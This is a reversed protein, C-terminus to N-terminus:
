IYIFSLYCLTLYSQCINGENVTTKNITSTAIKNQKSIFIKKSTTRDNIINTLGMKEFLRDKKKNIKKNRIVLLKALDV